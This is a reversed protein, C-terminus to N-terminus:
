DVATSLRVTERADCRLRARDPWPTAPTSTPIGRTRVFRGDCGIELPGISVIPMHLVCSLAMTLDGRCLLRDRHKVCRGRGGALAGLGWSRFSVVVMGFVNPKPDSVVPKLEVTWSCMM